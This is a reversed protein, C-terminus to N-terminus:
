VQRRVKEFKTSYLVAGKKVKSIEELSPHASHVNIREELIKEAFLM